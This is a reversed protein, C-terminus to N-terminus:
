AIVVEAREDRQELEQTAEVPARLEGSCSIEHWADRQRCTPIINCSSGNSM